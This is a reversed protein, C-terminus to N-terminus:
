RIKEEQMRAALEAIEQLERGSLGLTGALGSLQEEEPKAPSAAGTEPAMRGFPVKMGEVREARDERQMKWVRLTFVLDAVVVGFTLVFLLTAM